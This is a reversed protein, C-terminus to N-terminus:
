IADIIETLVRKYSELLRKKSRESVQIKDDSHKTFGNPIAIEVNYRLMADIDDQIAFASELLEEAREHLNQINKLTRMHISFHNYSYYSFLLLILWLSRRETAKHLPYITEYSM